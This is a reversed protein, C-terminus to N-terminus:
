WVLGIKLYLFNHLGNEAKDVANIPRKLIVWLKAFFKKALSAFHQIM